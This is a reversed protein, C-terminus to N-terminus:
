HQPIIEGCAIDSRPVPRGDTGALAIEIHYDRLAPDPVPFSGTASGRGHADVQLPVYEDPPGEPETPSCPGRRIHWLYTHDPDLGTLFLMVSASQGTPGLAIHARGQVDSNDHAPPALLAAWATAPPDSVDGTASTPTLGTTPRPQRACAALLLGLAVWGLPRRVSAAHGSPRAALPPEQKRNKNPIDYLGKRQRDPQGDAGHM